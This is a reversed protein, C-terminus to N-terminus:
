PPMIDTLVEDGTDGEVVTARVNGVDPCFWKNEIVTPELASWDKTRVCGTYSGAPVTVSEGVALVQAWDEAVGPLYEQRYPEGVAPNGVMVMGPLAGDVGATWSGETSMIGDEWAKTDEGFYWVNGDTDQAYWDLTDEVVDAGGGAGGGGGAGAVTVIDHVVMCTVGMLVKTESTVTFETVFTGDPTTEEYLMVTGPVLPMFPNDVGSVFSAPDITPNYGSGGAGGGGSTTGNGKSCAWLLPVLCALFVLKKV